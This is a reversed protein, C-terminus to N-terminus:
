AYPRVIPGYLAVLLAKEYDSKINQPGRHQLLRAAGMMHASWATSDKSSIIQRPVFQM